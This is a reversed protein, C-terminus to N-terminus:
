QGGANMRVAFNPDGDSRMSTKTVQGESNVTIMLKGDFVRSEGGAQENMLAPGNAAQMAQWEGMSPAAPGYSPAGVLEQAARSFLDVADSTNNAANMDQWATGGLDGLGGRKTLSGAADLDDAFLASAAAVAESNAAKQAAYAAADEESMVSVQFAEVAEGVWKIQALIWDMATKFSSTVGDWLGTFFAKIPEWNDMILKAAGIIPDLLIMFPAFVASIAGWHEQFWAKVPEWHEYILYAALAIGTVIAVIPNTMMALTVVRTVTAVVGLAVALAGLARTLEPNEKAWATFDATAEKASKLLETITPVVTEGMTLQLEELASDLEGAAGKMNSSMATAVLKATGEAQLNADVLKQLEGSGAQEMLIALTEKDGGMGVLGQLWRDRRVGGKGKGGFKKDAAKDLDALLEVIPKLNGAKDTVDIGLAALASRQKKAGSQVNSLVSALGTGAVSGKKGANGLAGIMATTTALDVGAKHATVGSYKLAEGLDVLGTASTNATKVLIDGIVGMDKAALGFQNMTATSVDAATEITEKTAAATSLVGPMADIVAQAKEVDAGAFNKALIDMGAAAETASYKTDAGLKRATTSLEAVAANMEVVQSADMAKTLDFTAATVSDMQEEFDAFKKLPKEILSSARNGLSELNQLDLARSAKRGANELGGLGQVIRRLPGLTSDIVSIEVGAVFRGKSDRAPM